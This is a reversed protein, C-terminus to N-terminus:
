LMMFDIVRFIMDWRANAPVIMGDSKTNKPYISM